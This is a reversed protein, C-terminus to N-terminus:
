SVLIIKLDPRTTALLQRLAILLVDTHQQREHVEDVMVHSIGKLSPDDQLRRLVIGTTCFLVRTHVPHLKAEMRIQYGVWHGVQGSQAGSERKEEECLEEAVREAVSTAAVRRPQTVLVKTVDGYGQSFAEELVYQPCQTTKGAGTEACVITVSHNRITDLVQDRFSWMPLSMRQTLMQQYDSSAQRRAFAQQLQKGQSSPSLHDSKIVSPSGSDNDDEWTPTNTPAIDEQLNTKADHRIRNSSQQTSKNDHDVNMSQDLLSLLHDVREQKAVEVAKERESRADTVEQQWTLWIQAMDPPFLRHLQLKPDMYYLAKLSLYERVPNNGTKKKNGGRSHISDLVFDAEYAQWSKTVPTNNSKYTIGLQYGRRPQKLQTYKPPQWKEKRFKEELFKQPTMGTWQSPISCQLLGNTTTNATNPAPTDSVVPNNTNGQSDEPEDFMGDGFLAPEDDDGDDNGVNKEDDWEENTKNNTEDTSKASPHSPPVEKEEQRQMKDYRRKLGQVHKRREKITQKLQQLEQKSRMYNNAENSVDAELLALEREAIQIQLLQQKIPDDMNDDGDRSKAEIPATGVSNMVKDATGTDEASGAVESTSPQPASQQGLTQIDKSLRQLHNGSTLPEQENDQYQQLIWEKNELRATSEQKSRSNEEYSTPSVEGETIVPPTSTEVEVKHSSTAVPSKSGDHPAVVLPSQPQPAAQGSEFSLDGSLPKSVPFSLVTLSPTEAALNQHDKPQWYQLLRATREDHFRLPLPSDDQEGEKNKSVDTALESQREPSLMRIGSYRLCLWDLANDLSHLDYQLALVVQRVQAPTFKLDDQLADIVTRFKSEFQKKAHSPRVPESSVSSPVLSLQEGETSMGADEQKDAAAGLGLSNETATEAQTVDVPAVPASSNSPTPQKTQNSPQGYGRADRKGGAKKKKSNKSPM